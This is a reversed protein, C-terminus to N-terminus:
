SSLLPPIGTLIYSLLFGLGTYDGLSIDADLYSSSYKAKLSLLASASRLLALDDLLFGDGNLFLKMSFDSNGFVVSM